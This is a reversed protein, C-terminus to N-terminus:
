AVCGKVYHTPITVIKWVSETNMISGIVPRLEDAAVPVGFMQFM